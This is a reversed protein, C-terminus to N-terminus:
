QKAPDQGVMRPAFVDNILMAAGADSAEGLGVLGDCTEVDVITQSCDPLEGSNRGYSAELPFDTPTAYIHRLKM